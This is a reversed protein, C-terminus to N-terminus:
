DLLAIRKRRVDSRQSPPDMGGAPKIIQPWPKEGGTRHNCHNIDPLGFLVTQRRNCLKRPCRGFASNRYQRQEVTALAGLNDRLTEIGARGMIQIKGINARIEFLRDVIGIAIDFIESAARFAGAM